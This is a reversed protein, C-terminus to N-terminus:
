RSMGGANPAPTTTSGSPYSSSAAPTSSGQGYGAGSSAGSSSSGMLSQMTNQDLTATQQLGHKQQYKRVAQTTEGGLVGDIPGNYLGEARLKQQAQEVQDKTPTASVQSSTGPMTSSAGPMTTSSAGPAAGAAMAAGVGGISLALVSATALILKRMTVEISQAAGIHAASGAFLPASCGNRGAL